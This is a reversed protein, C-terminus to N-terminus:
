AAILLDYAKQVKKNVNGDLISDFKMENNRYNQVNQYYSTIGNLAWQATGREQIDQGVGTELCERLGLFINRGRTPIDKNFIDKTEFFIKKSDEALAIEALVRNLDAETLQINRLRDYSEKLANTYVEAINLTRYAFETNEKNLLDLRETVRSTHRFSLRGINNQLALQLTNNCVVRVGSVVCRVAGTGDHSTTFIVYMDMLDDRKADLVVQKPFKATVFIREGNGLVGCTEILPTNDRDSLKGSCLTDVFQFAMENPVVGYSDSVIGLPLNLDTRLTAKKNPIFLKRLTDADVSQGSNILALVEDTMVAVPNTQVTFNAHCAELAEKVFMPRDFLQQDDGLGHWAREKLTRHEAFSSTMVGNVVRQEINHAM